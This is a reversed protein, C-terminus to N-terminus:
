KKLFLETEYSIKANWYEMWQSKNINLYSKNFNEIEFKELNEKM